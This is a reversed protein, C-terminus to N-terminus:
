RALTQGRDTTVVTGDAHLVLLGPILFGLSGAAVAGAILQEEGPATDRPSTRPRGSASDAVLVASAVLFPVSALVFTWGFARAATGSGSAKLVVRPRDPPLTFSASPLIGAGGVRLQAQEDVRAACPATCVPAWANGAASAVQRELRPEFPFQGPLAISTHNFKCGPCSTVIEALFHVDVSPPSSARAPPAEEEKVLVGTFRLSRQTGAADNGAATLELIGNSKVVATGAAVTLASCGFAPRLAFVGERQRVFGTGPVDGYAPAVVSARLACDAGVHVVAATDDLYEIEVGEATAAGSERALVGWYGTRPPALFGTPSAPPRIVPACAGSLLLLPLGITIPPPLTVLASSAVGTGSTRRPRV